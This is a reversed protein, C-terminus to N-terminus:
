ADFKCLILSVDDLAFKKATTINIDYFMDIISKQIASLNPLSVSDLLLDKMRSQFEEPTNKYFTDSLGDTYLVLVDGTGYELVNSTYLSDRMMGIPTGAAALEIVQSEKGSFFFPFTQGANSYCFRKNETDIVCFFLTAYIETDSEDFIDCFQNNIESLLQEPFFNPYTFKDATNKVMTSLMTTLLAAAIGHGSVDGICLGIAHENLQILDYFDGGIDLAPLYHTLLHMGGWEIDYDRMISRQIKKSMNLQFDLMKNKKELENYQEKLQSRLKSIRLLSSIKAMLVLSDFGKELIDDAGSEFAKLKSDKTELSSLFLILTFKSEPSGKIKRCIDFGSIDGFQTDLIILDPSLLQAKALVQRGNDATIVQYGTQRLMQSILESNRPNNDAVLIKEAKDANDM